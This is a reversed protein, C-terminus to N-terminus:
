FARLAARGRDSGTTGPSRHLSCVCRRCVPHTAIDLSTRFAIAEPGNLVRDLEDAASIRGIPSHFFCPRVAGKSDLVASVWPANCRPAVPEGIGISWRAHDVIRRLKEPTETIFRGCEGSSILAEIQLRLREIDTEGLRISNANLTTPHHDFAASHTDAALFSISDLQLERATEVTQILCDCNAKQVTARASVPFDPKHHHLAAIGARLREFAASVRRIQDQIQPPGDLSVIVDDITRVVEEAFRGLLLGTTLLTIRIRRERLAAAIRFLGFHMLPEGGTLVVWEVGLREIAPLHRLLEDPSLEGATDRKWIDCMICRCNCRRYVDLVLIPLREIVANM